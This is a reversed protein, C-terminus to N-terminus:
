AQLGARGSTVRVSCVTADTLGGQPLNANADTAAFHYGIWDPDGDGAGGHVHM